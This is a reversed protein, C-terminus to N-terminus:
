TKVQWGDQHKVSQFGQPQGFGLDLENKMQWDDYDKASQFRRPQGFDLDIETKWKGTM